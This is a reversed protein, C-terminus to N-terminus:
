SRPAEMQRRLLVIQGLHYSTHDAALLIERLLTQGEGWPIRATLKETPGAALKEFTELYQRVEQVSAEWQQASSPSKSEPWYDKPWEPAVYSPDTCFELLDRLAIRIHELLQWATHPAGNPAAGYFEPPFDRVAEDLTLHASGGRLLEVLHDRLVDSGASM